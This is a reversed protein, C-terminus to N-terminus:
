YNEGDRMHQIKTRTDIIAQDMLKSMDEIILGREEATYDDPTWPIYFFLHDGFVYAPYETVYDGEYVSAHKWPSSGDPLTEFAQRCMERVTAYKQDRAWALQNIGAKKFENDIHKHYSDIDKVLKQVLENIMDMSLEHVFLHSVMHLFVGYHIDGQITRNALECFATMKSSDKDLATVTM